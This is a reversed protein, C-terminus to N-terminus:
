PVLQNRGQEKAQYLAKDARRFCESVSENGDSIVWGICARVCIKEYDPIVIQNIKEHLEKLLAEFESKEPKQEVIAFEEGGFRAAVCKSSNLPRLLNAVQYLVIDGVDHGYTDNVLKFHDLDLMAIGIVKADDEIINDVFLDLSRRNPLKTLPDKAALEQLLQNSSELEQTRALVLKELEYAQQTKLISQQHETDRDRQLLKILYTSIMVTLLLCTTVIGLMMAVVPDVSINFGLGFIVVVGSGFILPLMSFAFWKAKISDAKHEKYIIVIALLIAPFFWYLPIVLTTNLDLFLASLAGSLILLATYGVLMKQLKVQKDQRKLLSIFMWASSIMVAYVLLGYTIDNLEPYNPWLLEFGYGFVRFFWAGFSFTFVAFSLYSRYKTAIFIILCVVVLTGMAGFFTMDRILNQRESTSALEPTSLVFSYRLIEGRMFGSFRTTNNSKLHVPFIYNPSAVPRSAFALADGTVWTTRQDTVTLYKIAPFPIVLWLSQDISQPNAVSVRFHLFQRESRSLEEAQPHWEEDGVLIEGDSVTFEMYDDLNLQSVENWAVEAANGAFSALLLLLSVLYKLINEM